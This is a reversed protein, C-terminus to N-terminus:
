RLNVSDPQGCYLTYKMSESGLVAQLICGVLATWMLTPGYIVIMAPFLFWEGAGIALSALIIGPGIAKLHALLGKPPTPLEYEGSSAEKVM